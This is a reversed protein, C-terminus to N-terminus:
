YGEFLLIIMEIKSILKECSAKISKKNNPLKQRIMYRVHFRKKLGATSQLLFGMNM